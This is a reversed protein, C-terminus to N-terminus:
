RTATAGSRSVYFLEANGYIVHGILFIVIVPVSLLLIFRGTVNKRYANSDINKDLQLYRKIWSKM